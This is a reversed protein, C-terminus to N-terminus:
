FFTLQAYSVAKQFKVTESKKKKAYSSLGKGHFSGVKKLEKMEALMKNLDEATNLKVGNM